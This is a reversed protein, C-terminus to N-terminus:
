RKAMAVFAHAQRQWSGQPPPTRSESVLRDTIADDKTCSDALADLAALVVHLSDDNLADLLPQCGHDRVARRAWGRVAELRVMFSRDGLYDRILDIQEEATILSGAGALALVAQRRVEPDDDNVVAKVTDADAGQSAVLAAMANRRADSSETRTTALTRLRT